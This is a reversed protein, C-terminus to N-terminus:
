VGLWSDAVAGGRGAGTREDLGIDIIFKSESSVDEAGGLAGVGGGTVEAGFGDEGGCGLRLILVEVLILSSTGTAGRERLDECVSRSVM